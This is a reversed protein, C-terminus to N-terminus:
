KIAGIAELSKPTGERCPGFASPIDITPIVVEKCFGCNSRCRKVRMRSTLNSMDHRRAFPGASKAGRLVHEVCSSQETEIRTVSVNFGVSIVSVVPCNLNKVGKVGQPKIEVVYRIWNMGVIDGVM